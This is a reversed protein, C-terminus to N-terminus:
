LRQLGVDVTLADPLSVIINPRIEGIGVPSNEGKLM